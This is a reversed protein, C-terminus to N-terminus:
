MKAWMIDVYIYFNQSIENLVVKIRVIVIGPFSGYVIFLYLSENTIERM